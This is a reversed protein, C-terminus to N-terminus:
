NKRVTTGLTTAAKNTGKISDVAKTDMPVVITATQPAPKALDVAAQMSGEHRREAALQAAAIAATDGPRVNANQLTVGEDEVRARIAREAAELCRANGSCRPLQAARLAALREARYTDMNLKPAVLAIVPPVVMVQTVVPPVATPVTVPAAAVVVPPPRAVTASPAPAPTAAAAAASSAPAPLKARDVPLAGPLASVAPITNATVAGSGSRREAVPPASAAILPAVAGALPGPNTARGVDATLNGAVLTRSGVIGGPSPPPPTAAGPIVAAGPITVPSALVPAAAQNPVVALPSATGGAVPSAPVAAASPTVPFTQMLPPAAGMGPLSPMGLRRSAGPAAGVAGPMVGAPPLGVQPTGAVIVGRNGPAAIPEGARTGGGPLVGTAMGLGGPRLDSAKLTSNAAAWQMIDEYCKTQAEKLRQALIEPGLSGLAPNMQKFNQAMVVCKQERDAVEKRCASGMLPDPNCSASLAKSKADASAQDVKKQNTDCSALGGKPLGVSGYRNSMIQTCAFVATTDSGCDITEADIAQNFMCSKVGSANLDKVIELMVLGASTKPDKLTCASAARADNMAARVAECRILWPFGTGAFARSFNGTTEDIGPGSLAMTAVTVPCVAKLEAESIGTQVGRGIRWDLLKQNLAQTVNQCNQLRTSLLATRAGADKAEILKQRLDSNSQQFTAVAADRAPIVTEKAYKDWAPYLPSNEFISFGSPIHAILYETKLEKFSIALAAARAERYSAYASAGSTRAVLAGALDNTLITAVFEGPSVKRGGCTGGFAEYIACGLEGFAGVIAAATEYVAEAVDLLLTLLGCVPFGSAIASVAACAASMPDGVALAFIDNFLEPVDGERVDLYIELIGKLRVANAKMDEPVNPSALLEGACEVVDAESSLSQCSPLAMTSRITTIWNLDAPAIYPNVGISAVSVFTDVADASATTPLCAALAIGLGLAWRQLFASTRQFSQRTM